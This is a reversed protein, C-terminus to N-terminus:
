RLKQKEKKIVSTLIKLLETCKSELSNNITFDYTRQSMYVMILRIWYVTERAERYAIGLKYVFEKTSSAGIAEEINAGISTGSRLLQRSLVYEKESILECYFNIIELSFNYSKDQLINYKM